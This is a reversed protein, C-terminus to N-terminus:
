DRTMQDPHPICTIPYKADGDIVSVLIKGLEGALLDNALPDKLEVLARKLCVASEYVLSKQKVTFNM